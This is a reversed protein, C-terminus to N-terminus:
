YIVSLSTENLLIEESARFDKMDQLCETKNKFVELYIYLLKQSICVKWVNVMEFCASTNLISQM